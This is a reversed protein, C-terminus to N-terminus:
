FSSLAVAPVKLHQLTAKHVQVEFVTSFVVKKKGQNLQYYKCVTQLATFRFYLGYRSYM